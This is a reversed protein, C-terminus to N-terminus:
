HVQELKLCRLVIRYSELLDLILGVTDDNLASTDTNDFTAIVSDIANIEEMVEGVTEFHGRMTKEKHYHM